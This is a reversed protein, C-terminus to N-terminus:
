CSCVLFTNGAEYTYSLWEREKGKSEASLNSILGNSSGHHSNWMMERSSALVGTNPKSTVNPIKAEKPNACHGLFNVSSPTITAEEFQAPENLDALGFASRLCSNSMSADKQSDSTDCGGLFLKVSNDQPATFNGNAPYNLCFSEKSDQLREGDDTDIYQDAPLHLDFLKKRVKSPRAELVQCNKPSFGNQLQLRGSQVNNGKACSLPSNIIETSCTSARAYGSHALPFSTVHWKQADESPLQSGLINSSSSPEMSM